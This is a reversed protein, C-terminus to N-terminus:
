PLGFAVIGGTKLAPIEHSGTPVYLMGNGASPGGVGVPSGVRFEWLKKGTQKDLAMIIGNAVLPTKYPTGFVDYKYPKGIGTIHGGFVIGNTVLPSVWTPFETPYVWKTKGTKLDVATITGNGIGNKTANFAPELHSANGNVFWNEPVSSTSVYLTNNDAAAFAQIGSHTDAMILGSGNPAVGPLPIDISKNAYFGVRTWWIPKGSAADMEIMNGLKDHGIVVKKQTGNEFKINMLITGWSTDDDHTDPLKNNFVSNKGYFPTDWVMKGNTINVAIVSEAFYSPSQMRTRPTFDPTPNGLPFYLISTKPDFAGGTWATAGGNPPVNNPTVWHGTTTRLNWIIEGNTRNLATINGQIVGPYPPFDGGASGVVVYDKWVVPPTAVGYGLAKPGLTPSEWIKKGDTANIALVTANRGSGVFLVNQDYTLGHMLGGPGTSDKWLNQGTTANFAYIVGDNDQVYGKDGIIIPSNEVMNPTNMVWKVQLKNVNDKGIATQNSMRTGFIDHNATIWNNKNSTETGLTVNSSKPLSIKPNTIEKFYTTIPKNEALMQGLSQPLPLELQNAAAAALTPTTKVTAASSASGSSSVVTILGFMWPHLTCFYNVTGQGKITVTSSSGAPIIGTNFIKGTNTDSTGIGSTATHPATDDNRWVVNTGNIVTAALPQYYQDLVRLGGGAPIVITTPTPLVNPKNASQSPMSSQLTKVLQAKAFQINTLASNSTLVIPVLLIVILIVSITKSPM